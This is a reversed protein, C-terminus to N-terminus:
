VTVTRELSFVPFSRPKQFALMSFVPSGLGVGRVTVRVGEGEGGGEGEEEGEGERM